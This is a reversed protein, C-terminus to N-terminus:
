AADMANALKGLPDVHCPACALCDEDLPKGDRHAECLRCWCGLNKGRLPEIWRGRTIAIWTEAFYRYCAIVAEITDCHTPLAASFESPNCGITFPNGYKGPRSVRATNPPMRWGKTRRLQIRLASM